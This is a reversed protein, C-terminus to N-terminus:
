IKKADRINVVRGGFTLHQPAELKEERAFRAQNDDFHEDVTTESEFMEDFASEGMAGWRGFVDKVLWMGESLRVNGEVTPVNIATYVDEPDRPNSEGVLVGGCMKVLDKANDKSLQEAEIFEAKTKFKQM